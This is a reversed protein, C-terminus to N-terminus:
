DKKKMKEMNTLIKEEIVMLFAVAVRFDNRFSESFNLNSIFNELKDSNLIDLKGLFINMSKVLIVLMDISELNHDELIKSVTIHILGKPVKM